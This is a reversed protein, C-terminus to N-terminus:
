VQSEWLVQSLINLQANLGTCNTIVEFYIMSLQQSNMVHTYKIIFHKIKYILWGSNYYLMFQVFRLGVQSEGGGGGRTSCEHSM